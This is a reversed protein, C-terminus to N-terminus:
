KRRYMTTLGKYIEQTEASIQASRRLRRAPRFVPVAAHVAPPQAQKRADDRSAVQRTRAHPLCPPPFLLSKSAQQKAPIRYLVSEMALGDADANLMLMLM